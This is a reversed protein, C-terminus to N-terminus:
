GTYSHLGVVKDQHKRFLILAERKVSARLVANNLEQELLPEPSDPLPPEPLVVSDDLVM